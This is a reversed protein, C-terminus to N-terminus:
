GPLPIRRGDELELEPVTLADPPDLRVVGLRNGDADRWTSGDTVPISMCGCNITNGPSGNPDRPYMLAEGDVIFPDNAPVLQGHADVHEPRPQRKGSHVWRKKLGPLLNTAESLTDQSARSYARGVEDYVITRARRRTAGGLLAQVRTVAEAAPRTGILVQAIESNIRDLTRVGIGVIRSTLGDRLAALARLNLRPAIGIGGAALPQVVLDAGAAWARQVAAGATEGASRSWAELARGIEVQLARLRARQWEAGASALQRTVEAAAAKLQQEIEGLADRQLRALRRLQRAREANFAATPNSPTPMTAAGRGRAM